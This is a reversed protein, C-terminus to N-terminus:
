TCKVRLCGRMLQPVSPWVNPWIVCSQCVCVLLLPLLVPSLLAMPIFPRAREKTRRQGCIIAALTDTRGKLAILLKAKQLSQLQSQPFPLLPPPHQPAPPQPRRPLLCLTLIPSKVDFLHSHPLISFNSLPGEYDLYSYFCNEQEEIKLLIETQVKNCFCLKQFVDKHTLFDVLVHVHLPISSLCLLM